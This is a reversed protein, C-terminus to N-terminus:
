IKINFLICLIRNKNENFWQNKITLSGSIGSPISGKSESSVHGIPVPCTINSSNIEECLDNTTPTLPLFNYTIDYTSTGNTIVSNLDGNLYLVYDTTPLVPSVDLVINQMLDTSTGCSSFTFQKVAKISVLSLLILIQQFM